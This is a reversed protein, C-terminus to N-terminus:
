ETLVVKRVDGPRGDETMPGRVFYVGPALSRVDNEGPKLDMLKRGSVDLLSYGGTQNVPPLHLIRSFVTQCLYGPVPTGRTEEVAGTLRPFITARARGAMCEPEFSFFALGVHGLTDMALACDGTVYTSEFAVIDVGYPDLLDGDPSIRYGRLTQFRGGTLANVCLFSAGDYELSTHNRVVGPPIPVATDLLNAASDLLWLRPAGSSVVEAGLIRGGGCAVDTFFNWSRRQWWISDLIKLTRDYLGVGMWCRIDPCNYIRNVAVLTDGMHALSARTNVMAYGFRVKLPVPVSDLVRGDAMVRVVHTSELQDYDLSVVFISDALFTVGLEDENLAATGLTIPVTDMVVGDRSIRTAYTAVLGPLTDPDECWCLLYCGAGYALVSKLPITRPGGITFPEADIFQGQNDFRRARFRASYNPDARIDAWVALFNEGDSTLVSGEHSNASFAYDRALSDVVGGSALVRRGVLRYRYMSVSNVKENWLVLFTDTTVAVAPPALANTSLKVPAPDIMQGDSDCRMCAITSTGAGWVVLTTEGDAAVDISTAGRALALGGTDLVIGAQSVRAAMALTERDPDTVELWAVWFNEGDFAAKPGFAPVRQRIPIIQTDASSNDPWIFRASICSDWTSDVGQWVVFYASDGRVVDAADLYFSPQEGSAVLLRRMVDGSSSVEAARVEHRDSVPSWVTSVVAYRDPRAALSICYMQVQSDILVRADIAGSNSVLAFWLQETIGSWAVAYGSDSCAASPPFSMSARQSPGAANLPITDLLAMSRDLRSAYINDDSPLWAVMGTTRSAAVGFYPLSSNLYRGIFRTTDLLFSPFPQAHAVGIGLLAACLLVRARAARIAQISYRGRVRDKTGRPM